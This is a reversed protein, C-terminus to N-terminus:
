LRPAGTAPDLWSPQALGSRLPTRRTAGDALVTLLDGNGDIACRVADPPPELRALYVQAVADFGEAEWADLRLMLYRAFSAPIAERDDAGFGEEDLSTSLPTLGPDGVGQKMALLMCSVVLWDPIEDEGCAPPWGLRAGGLRAGDYRITDPWAFSVAKEPPARSAIGDAMAVMAAFLARRATALPEEPELVVALEVLDLRRVWVLTGAGEDPAIRCAQAFADGSERLILLRYPPPLDFPSALGALAPM